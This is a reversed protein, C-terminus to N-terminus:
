IATTELTGVEKITYIVMKPTRQELIATTMTRSQGMITFLITQLSKRGPDGGEIAVDNHPSVVPFTATSNSIEDDEEKEEEDEEDEREDDEYDEDEEGM